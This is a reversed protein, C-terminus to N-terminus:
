KSIGIRSLVLCINNQCSNYNANPIITDHYRGHFDNWGSPAVVRPSGQGGQCDTEV